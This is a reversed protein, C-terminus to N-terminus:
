APEGQDVVLQHVFMVDREPDIGLAFTNPAVSKGGVLLVRRTLEEPTDGGYRAPLARFGSAPPRRHVLQDWLAHFVLVTDKAVQIPLSLAPVTWEIRMRFHTAAQYQALEALSAGMAAVAAGALLEATQITNDLLVWLAMLLVWWVLWSGVRRALPIDEQRRRPDGAGAVPGDAAM